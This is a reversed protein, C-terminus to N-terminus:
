ARAQDLLAQLSAAVAAAAGAGRSTVDWGANAKVAAKDVSLLQAVAEGLIAKDDIAMTAEAAILRSFRHGFAGQVPGHIVVSGLAAPQFPDVVPGSLFTGCLFTMPAIRYWLGMGDDDDTIYIQTAEEPEAGSSRLSTNLGAERCIDAIETGYETRAPAIMLILRHARRAAERHAACLMAADSPRASAALWVPRTGLAQALESRDSERYPLVANAEDIPGTVEIVDRSVGGDIFASESYKDAAFVAHLRNLTARARHPMWSGMMRSLMRDTGNVVIVPLDVAYCPVLAAQEITGGMWLVAFPRHREIFEKVDRQSQPNPYAPTDHTDPLTMIFRVRDGDARLLENLAAVQDLQAPESCRAWIVHQQPTPM